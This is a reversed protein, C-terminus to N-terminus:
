QLLPTQIEVTRFSTGTRAKWHKCVFTLITSQFLDCCEVRLDELVCCEHCDGRRLRREPSAFKLM